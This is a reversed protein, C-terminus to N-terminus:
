MLASLIFRQLVGYVGAQLLEERFSFLVYVPPVARLYGDNKSDLEYRKRSM